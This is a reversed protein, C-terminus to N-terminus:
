GATEESNLARLFAEAEGSIGTQGDGDGGCTELLLRIADLRDVMKVEIAGAASKKVEQLMSLDLRDVYAAGDETEPIFVLKVADNAKGFALTKLKKLALGRINGSM